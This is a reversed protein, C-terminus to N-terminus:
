QKVNLDKVNLGNQINNTHLTLYLPLNVEKAYSHVTTGDGNISLSHKWWQITKAGKDFILQSYKHPDIKPGETSNWQNIYRERQLYWM